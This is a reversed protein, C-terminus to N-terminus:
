FIIHLQMISRSFYKNRIALRHVCRELAHRVEADARMLIVQLEHGKVADEFTKSSCVFPKAADGAGVAGATRARAFIFVEGIGFHHAHTALLLIRRRDRTLKAHHDLQIM